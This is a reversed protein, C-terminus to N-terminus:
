LVEREALAPQAGDQELEKQLEREASVLWDVLSRPIPREPTLGQGWRQAEQAFLEQLAVPDSRVKMYEIRREQPTLKRGVAPRTVLNARAQRRSEILRDVVSEMVEHNIAMPDADSAM